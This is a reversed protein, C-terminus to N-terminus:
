VSMACICVCMCIEREREVYVCTYVYVCQHTCSYWYVYVCVCVCMCVCVCVCVCVYMCLSGSLSFSRIFHCAKYLVSSTNLVFSEGSLLWYNAVADWLSHLSGSHLTTLVRQ